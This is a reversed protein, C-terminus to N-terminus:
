VGLYIDGLCIPNQVIWPIGSCITDAPVYRSPRGVQFLDFDIRIRRLLRLNSDSQNQTEM